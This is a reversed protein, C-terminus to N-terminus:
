LNANLFSCIIQIEAFHLLLHVFSFRWKRGRPILFPLTWFFRMGNWSSGHLITKRAYCSFEPSQDLSIVIFCWLNANELIISYCKSYYCWLICSARLLQKPDFICQVFYEYGYCKRSFINRSHKFFDLDFSFRSRNQFCEHAHTANSM